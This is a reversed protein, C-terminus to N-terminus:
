RMYTVYVNGRLAWRGGGEKKPRQSQELVQMARGLPLSTRSRPRRVRMSGYEYVGKM